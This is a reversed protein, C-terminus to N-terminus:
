EAPFIERKQLTAGKPAACWETSAKVDREADM